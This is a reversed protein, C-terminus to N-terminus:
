LFPLPKTAPPVTLTMQERAPILFIEELFIPLVDFLILLALAVILANFSNFYAVVDVSVLDYISFWFVHQGLLYVRFKNQVHFSLVSILLQRM